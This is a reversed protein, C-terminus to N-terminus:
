FVLKLIQPGVFNLLDNILKLFGAILFTATYTKCLALFLSPKSTHEKRLLVNKFNKNSKGSSLSPLEISEHGTCEVTDSLM